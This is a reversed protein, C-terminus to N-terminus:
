LRQRKSATRDPRPGRSRSTSRGGPKWPKSFAHTPRPSAQTARSSEALARRDTVDPAFDLYLTTTKATAPVFAASACAPTTPGSTSGPRRDGGGPVGGHLHARVDHPEPPPANDVYRRINCNFDEAEIESSRCAAPTAPARGSAAPQPLRPHDERHGRPAPLEPGQGRPIGPRRQHLPRAQPRAADKKNM